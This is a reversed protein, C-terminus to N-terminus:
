AETFSRRHEKCLGHKKIANRHMLTGYGKHVDFGYKPYKGARSTMIRDRHVKAFVSALAILKNKSDGGIITKQNKYKDPAKLSGDLFIKSKPDLDLKNLVIRIAKKVSRSIGIKDIERSSISCIAKEVEIGRVIEERKKSSLKKSDKVDKLFTLNRKPSVAVACITVPGAFPGRGVEDVGVLRIKSM